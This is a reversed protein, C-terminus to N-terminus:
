GQVVLLYGESIHLKTLNDNALVVIDGRHAVEAMAMKRGPQFQDEVVFQRAYTSCRVQVKVSESDVPAATMWDRDLGSPRYDVIAAPVATPNLAAAESATSALAVLDALAAARGVGGQAVDHFEAGIQEPFGDAAEPVEAAKERGAM